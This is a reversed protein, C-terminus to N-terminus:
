YTCTDKAKAVLNKRADAAAVTDVRGPMSLPSAAFYQITVTGSTDSVFPQPSNTLPTGNIDANGSTAPVISLYIHAMAVPNGAANLAQVTFNVMQNATLSGKPAIPVPTFLYHTVTAYRYYTSQHITADTAADQATIIDQGGTLLTCPVKYVVAVVGSAYATFAQPKGSIAVGNVTAGGGGLARSLSLCVTAGPIPTGTGDLAEVPDTTMACAALSAPPAAPVSRWVLKAITTQTQASAGGPGIAMAVASLVLSGALVAGRKYLTV